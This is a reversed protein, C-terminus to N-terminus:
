SARVLRYGAGLVNEILFGHPKIRRRLRYMQVGLVSRACEPEGDTREAVNMLAEFSIVQGMRRSMLDFMSALSKTLGYKHAESTPEMYAMCLVQIQDSAKDVVPSHTVARIQDLLREVERYATEM